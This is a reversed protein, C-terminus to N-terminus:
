RNKIHGLREIADQACPRAQISAFRHIINRGCITMNRKYCKLNTRRQKYKAKKKLEINLEVPSRYFHSSYEGSDFVLSRKSAAEPESVSTQQTTKVM